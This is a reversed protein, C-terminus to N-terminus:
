RCLPPSQGVHSCSGMLVPVSPGAGTLPHGWLKLVSLSFQIASVKMAAIEGRWVLHFTAITRDLRVVLRWDVVTLPVTVPYQRRVAGTPKVRACQM